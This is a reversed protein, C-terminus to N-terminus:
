TMQFYNRARRITYLVPHQESHWGLPSLPVSILKPPHNNLIEVLSSLTKEEFVAAEVFSNIDVQSTVLWHDPLVFPKRSNDLNTLPLFYVVIRGVRERAHIPLLCRTLKEM